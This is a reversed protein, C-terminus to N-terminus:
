AIGGLELYFLKLAHIESCTTRSRAKSLEAPIPDIRPSICGKLKEIAVEFEFASPEPM